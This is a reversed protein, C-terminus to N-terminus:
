EAVKAAAELKIKEMLAAAAVVDGALILATLDAASDKRQKFEKNAKADDKYYRKAAMEYNFHQYPIGLSM